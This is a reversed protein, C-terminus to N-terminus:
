KILIFLYFLFLWDQINGNLVSLIVVLNKGVIYLRSCPDTSEVRDYKYNLSLDNVMLNNFYFLIIVQNILVIRQDHLQSNIMNCVTTKGSATGGAVGSFIENQSFM